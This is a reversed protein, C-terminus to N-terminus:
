GLWLWPWAPLWALLRTLRCCSVWRSSRSCGWAPTGCGGTVALDGGATLLRCPLLDPLLPLLLLALALLLLLVVVLKPGGAM